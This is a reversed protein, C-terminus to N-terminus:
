ASLPIKYENPQEHKVRKFVEQASMKGSMIAGEMTSPYPTLTYDGALYLQQAGTIVSPRYQNVNVTCAFAGRKEHIVKSAIVQYLQPFHHKLEQCLQLTLDAHNMQLHPGNGSIVVAMLGPQNAFRRDFVWQASMDALGIMPYPLAVDAPFQLYVTTISESKLQSLKQCLYHCAPISKCLDQTVWYPTALVVHGYFAQKSTQVGLVKTKDTILSTVRMHTFVEGQNDELFKQAPKPIIESLDHKAFWFDSYRAKQTLADLLVQAFVHSSAQEIPTTLAALCLPSWFYDIVSQSQKYSQLTKLCSQDPRRFLEGLNRMVRQIQWLEKLNLGKARAFGLLAHLPKPLHAFKINVTKEKGIMHWHLPTKAFLDEGLNLTKMLEHLARYAGIFLHQGNDVMKDEFEISRARGGLQPSAELLTVPVGHRTLHVAASIGAWGGGVVIVPNM